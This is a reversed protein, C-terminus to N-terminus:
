DTQTNRGVPVFVGCGFRRRGGLGHEQLRLSEEATLGSVRLAYGIVRRGAITLVRRKPQGSWPPSPSPVFSPEGVVDIESLHRRVSSEFSPPETPGRFVVLRSALLPAPVLSEVRPVGVFLRHGVLDLETGSLAIYPALGESPLRIRLRSGPMLSLVGPATRLGRIPHVGVRADGHLSPVVRCLASYLPYGHDLPITTGTITFALDITPM